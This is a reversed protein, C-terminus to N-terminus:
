GIKVAVKLSGFKNRLAIMDQLTAVKKIQVTKAHVVSICPQQISEQLSFFKM